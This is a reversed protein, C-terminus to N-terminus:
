LLALAQFHVLGLKRLRFAGSKRFGQSEPSRYLLELKRELRFSGKLDEFLFDRPYRKAGSLAKSSYRNEPLM